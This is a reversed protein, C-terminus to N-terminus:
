PGFTAILKSFTRIHAFKRFNWINCIIAFKRFTWNHGLYQLSNKFFNSNHAFKRFNWIKCFIAFKWFTWINCNIKSFTRIHSFKRFNGIKCFYRSSKFYLEFYQALKGLIGFKAVFFFSNKFYKKTTTSFTSINPSNGFICVKAFYQSNPIKM